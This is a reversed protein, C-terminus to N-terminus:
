PSAPKLQQDVPSHRKPPPPIIDPSSVGKTQVFDEAEELSFSGLRIHNFINFFGSEHGVKGVIKKLPDQSVIVLVLNTNQSDAM